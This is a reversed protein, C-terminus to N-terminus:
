NLVGMKLKTEGDKGLEEKKGLSGVKGRSKCEKGDWVKGGLSAETCARVNAGSAQSRRSQRKM